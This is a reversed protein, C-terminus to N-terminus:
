SKLISTNIRKHQYLLLCGTQMNSRRTNDINEGFYLIDIDIIYKINVDTYLIYM